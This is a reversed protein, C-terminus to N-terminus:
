RLIYYYRSVSTFSNHLPHVHQAVATSSDWIHSTTCMNFMRESASKAVILRPSVTNLSKLQRATTNLEPPTAQDADRGSVVVVYWYAEVVFGYQYSVARM